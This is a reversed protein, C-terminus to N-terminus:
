VSKVPLAPHTARAFVLSLSVALPSLRLISRLIQGIEHRCRAASLQGIQLGVHELSMEGGGTAVQNMDRTAEALGGRLARDQLPRLRIGCPRIGDRTVVLMPARVFDIDGLGLDESWLQGTPHPRRV